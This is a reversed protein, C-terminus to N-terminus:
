FYCKPYFRYLAGSMRLGSEVRQEASRSWELAARLNDHEMELRGLWEGQEAGLLKPEAEEALALYCDLHQERFKDSQENEERLRDQAYQQVTQLLRYRGVGNEDEDYIVLSKDVLAALLDLIEWEEIPLESM